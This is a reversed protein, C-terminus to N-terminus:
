IEEAFRICAVKFKLRACKHSDPHANYRSHVTHQHVQTAVLTSSDHGQAVKYLREGLIGASWTNCFLELDGEAPDYLGIPSEKAVTQTRSKQFFPQVNRKVGMRSGILSLIIVTPGGSCPGPLLAEGKRSFVSVCNTFSSCDGTRM